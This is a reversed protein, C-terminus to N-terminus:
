SLKLNRVNMEKTKLIEYGDEMSLKLWSSIQSRLLNHFAVVKSMSGDNNLYCNIMHLNFDITFKRKFHRIEM